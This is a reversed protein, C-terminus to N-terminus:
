RMEGTKEFKDQDLYWEVCAVLEDYGQCVRACYGQERLADLWKEQEVRPKAGNVKTEMYLGFYRGRAVPLCLDPVGAKVGEASMRIREIKNARQNPIAYILKLELYQGQNIWWECRQIFASQEQHEDLKPKFETM